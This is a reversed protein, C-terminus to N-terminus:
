TRLQALREDSLPISIMAMVLELGRGSIASRGGFSSGLDNAFAEALTDGETVLEPLSPSKVTFGDQGQPIFVLPLRYLM